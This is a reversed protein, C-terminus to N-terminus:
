SLPMRLGSLEATGYECEQFDRTYTTDLEIDGSYFFPPEAALWELEPQTAEGRATQTMSLDRSILAFDEFTAEDPKQYASGRFLNEVTPNLAPIVLPGSSAQFIDPQIRNTINEIAPSTIMQSAYPHESQPAVAADLSTDDVEKHGGTARACQVIDTAASRYNAFVRDQAIRIIEDLQGMLREELPQM